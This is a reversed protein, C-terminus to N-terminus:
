WGVGLAEVAKRASERRHTAGATGSVQRLARDATALPGTTQTGGINRRCVRPGRAFTCLHM